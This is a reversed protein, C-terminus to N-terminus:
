GTPATTVLVQQLVVPDQSTKPNGLQIVLNPNSRTGGPLSLTGQDPGPYVTVTRGDGAVRLQLRSGTVVITSEAIPDSDGAWFLRLTVSPSSAADLVVSVDLPVGALAIAPLSVSADPPLSLAGGGVTGGSSVFGNSLYLGDFGDALVTSAGLQSEEARHFLDPDTAARGAADRDYVGFEDVVGVM